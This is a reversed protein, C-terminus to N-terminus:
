QALGGQLNEFGDRFIEDGIPESKQASSPWFGGHVAFNGGTSVGTDHQGATSSIQFNGGNSASSGAAIVAKKVEIDAGSSQALTIGASSMCVIATLSIVTHKTNM